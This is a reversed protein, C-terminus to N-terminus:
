STLCALIMGVLQGVTLGMIEDLEMEALWGIFDVKDGFRERVREALAVFEISEMEIDDAFSTAMTIPIGELYDEGIVEGVLTAVAALIADQTWAAEGAQGPATDTHAAM